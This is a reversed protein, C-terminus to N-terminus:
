DYCYLVANRCFVVCFVGCGRDSLLPFNLMLKERYRETEEGTLQKMLKIFLVIEAKQLHMFKHTSALCTDLEIWHRKGPETTFSEITRYESLQIGIEIFEIANGPTALDLVQPINGINGTPYTPELAISLHRLLPFVSIDLCLPRKPVTQLSPSNLFSILFFSSPVYMKSALAM